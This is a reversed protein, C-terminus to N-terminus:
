ASKTCVIDVTPKAAFTNTEGVIERLSLVAEDDSYRGTANSMLRMRKRFQTLLGLLILIDLAYKINALVQATM